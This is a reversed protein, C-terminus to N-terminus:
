QAVVRPIPIFLFFRIDRSVFCVVRRVVRKVCIYMVCANARDRREKKESVDHVLVRM